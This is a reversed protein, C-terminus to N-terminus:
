RFGLLHVAQLPWLHSSVGSSYRSSVPEDATKLCAQLSHECSHLEVNQLQWPAHEVPMRYLRGRADAVYAVYREVLWEDLSGVPAVFIESQARFQCSLISQNAAFCRLSREEGDVAYQLRALTYPLPTLCRAAAVIPWRDAYMNLFYIAEEGRYRVYTRLNLELCGTLFPVPPCLRHRMARLHFGVFSVWAQGEFLDIDLSTPLQKRLWATSAPWHLFLADRWQQSWKWKNCPPPAAETHEAREDAPVIFSV